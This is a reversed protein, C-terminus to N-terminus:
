MVLRIEEELENMFSVKVMARISQLRKGSSLTEKMIKLFRAQSLTMCDISLTELSSLNHSNM